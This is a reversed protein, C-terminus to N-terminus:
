LNSKEYFWSSVIIKTKKMQVVWFWIRIMLYGATSRLFSWYLTLCTHPIPTNDDINLSVSIHVCTIQFYKVFFHGFLTSKELTIKLKELNNKPKGEVKHKVPSSHSNRNMQWWSRLNVWQWDLAKIKTKVCYEKQLENLCKRMPLITHDVCNKM